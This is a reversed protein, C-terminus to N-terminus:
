NPTPKHGGVFVLKPFDEDPVTMPRGRIDTIARKGGTGKREYALVPFMQKYETPGGRSPDGGWVVVYPEGDNPSILLQDPDGYPKLFPKLEEANKPGHRLQSHADVYALAIQTLNKESDTLPIVKPGSGCGTLGALLVLVRLLLWRAPRVTQAPSRELHVIVEKGSLIFDDWGKTSGISALTQQRSGSISAKAPLL